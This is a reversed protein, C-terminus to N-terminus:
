ANESKKFCFVALGISAVLLLVSIAMHVPWLNSLFLSAPKNYACIGALACILPLAFARKSKANVILLIVSAASAVMSISPFLLIDDIKFPTATQSNIWNGLDKHEDTFPLWIYGNISSTEGNHSWFPLFQLIFACACLVICAIAFIRKKGNIQNIM